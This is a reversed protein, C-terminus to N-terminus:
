VWHLVFFVFTLLIFVPLLVCASYAMYHLFSPMRVGREQAIAKVMFNPGNGIYTNAGMFVSGLSLAVLLDTAIRGGGMLATVGAGPAVPLTGATEFFVVYTPANDLFSSLGGSAWFFQWPQTLGLSPGQIKLMEIPAQMTIFIGLFLAAVEAIAAFNFHNARRIGAPTTLLSLGALGLMVLERLFDPVLTRGLEGLYRPLIPQGPVLLAVAGVVGALYFLNIKGGLRLPQVAAEDRAIAGPSERRYARVDWVYYIGLLLGVCCLWKGALGLTWFFPVGKLYGLFLPPDGIPLLCGGINCVLFIFFIVTHKVHRRESNTQLLPRILLIAAGTTGILNALVTGVALFLTNTRPHAPLDGRLQIGGSITYLSFLLVIFPLYEDLLAARLQHILMPWGAGIATYQGHELFMTGPHALGYFLGVPLSLALAILLKNRNHQWFRHCAPILPLLAIALLLAVFPAASWAPPVYREAAGAQALM